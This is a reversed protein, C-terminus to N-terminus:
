LNLLSYPVDGKWFFNGRAKNKHPNALFAGSADQALSKSQNDFEYIGTGEGTNGSYKFGTVITRGNASMVKAPTGGVLGHEKTFGKWNDGNNWTYNIGASTAVWVTDQPIHIDLISNSTITKSPEAFVHFSGAYITLVISITYLSILLKKRKIM